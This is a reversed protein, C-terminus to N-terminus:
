LTNATKCGTRKQVYYYIMFINGKLHLKWLTLKLLEKDVLGEIIPYKQQKKKKEKKSIFLVLIQM